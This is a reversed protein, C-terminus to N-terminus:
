HDYSTDRAIAAITVILSSLHVNRLIWKSIEYKKLSPLCNEHFSTTNYRKAFPLPGKPTTKDKQCVFQVSRRKGKPDKPREPCLIELTQNHKM